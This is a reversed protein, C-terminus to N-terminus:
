DLNSVIDQDEALMVLDDAFRLEEVGSEDQNAQEMINDMLIIFLLPSLLCGQRLECKVELWNIICTLIIINNKKNIFSNYLSYNAM